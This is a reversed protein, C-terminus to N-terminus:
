EVDVTALADEIVGGATRDTATRVRHTLVARVETQVDDPVVYSRGDLVARAQAAQLLAITGRPSVGLQAQERTYNALRTAYTRVPESVTVDATAARAARLDALSAVASLDEIPHDGVVRGLMETEESEEPYGLHLKKMFRDVEAMPLDYARDGEVTNQTAIVTFPQPLDYTDGDVTAQEEEMAELLASQTKPPARNIEDGLVVNAFIPGERFEFSETQQNYINVGTVDSPLLDPTFQVRKFTGDFSRAVSRALMTKGVGPVDELLVHGRGLLATVIHEIEAHHGVIVGEVNDVVDEVVATAEAIASDPQADATETETDTM